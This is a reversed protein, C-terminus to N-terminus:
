SDSDILPVTVPQTQLHEPVSCILTPDDEDSDEMVESRRRKRRRRTAEIVQLLKGSIPGAVVARERERESVAISVSKTNANARQGDNGAQKRANTERECSKEKRRM